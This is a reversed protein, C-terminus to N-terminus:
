TVLLLVIHRRSNGDDAGDYWVSTIGVYLQLM